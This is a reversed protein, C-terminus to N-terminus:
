LMLVHNITSSMNFAWQTTPPPSGASTDDLLYVGGRSYSYVWEAIARSCFESSSPIPLSENEERVRKNRALSEAFAHLISSLLVSSFDLLRRIM